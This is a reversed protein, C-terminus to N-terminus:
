MDIFVPDSRTLGGKKRHNFHNYIAMEICDAHVRQPRLIELDDRLLICQPRYPRRRRPMQIDAIKNERRNLQSVPVDRMASTPSSRADSSSRVGSM